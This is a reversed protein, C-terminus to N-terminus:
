VVAQMEEKPSVYQLRLGTLRKEAEHVDQLRAGLRSQNAESPDAQFQANIDVIISWIADTAIHHMAEEAAPAGPSREPDMCELIFESLFHPQCMRLILAGYRFLEAEIESLLATEGHLRWYRALAMGDDVADTTESIWDEPVRGLDVLFAIARCLLHRAQLGIQAALVENKEFEAALGLAAFANERALSPEPPQQNLLAHGHNLHACSLIRRQEPHAPPHGQFQQISEAFCRRAEQTGEANAQGAAALGRNMWALALRARFTPHEDLPMRQLLAIAKDYSEMARALQTPEGLRTLVDAANMWAASLGWMYKPNQDLPLDRRLEIAREFCPLAKTLAARSGDDLLALGRNTWLNALHNADDPSGSRAVSQFHELAQEYCPLAEARAGATNLERLANAKGLWVASLLRPADPHNDKQLGQAIEIAASVQEIAQKIASTQRTAVLKEAENLFHYASAIGEQDATSPPENSTPM